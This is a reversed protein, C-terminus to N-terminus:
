DYFDFMVADPYPRVGGASEYLRMGATNGANTFVSM